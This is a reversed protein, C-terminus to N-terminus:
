GSPDPLLAPGLAERVAMVTGLPVDTPDDGITIILGDGVAETQVDGPLEGARALRAGTLYTAWGVVVEGIEAGQAERLNRGVWTVDSPSWTEILARVLAAAKTPHYLDEALPDDTQPLKIVVSNPGGWRSWGGCSVSLGAVSDQGNWLSVNFGLEPIIANNADDRYRGALLLDRLQESVPEVKSTTATERSRGPEFWTALIPDVEKLSNMLAELRDGCEEMSESRPGWYGGVYFSEVM